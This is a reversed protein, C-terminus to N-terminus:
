GLGESATEEPFGFLLIADEAEQQAHILVAKATDYDQREIARIAQESSRFLHYYLEQYTMM